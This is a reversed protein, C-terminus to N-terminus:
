SCLDMIIFIYRIMLSIISALITLVPRVEERVIPNFLSLASSLFPILLLSTLLLSILAREARNPESTRPCDIPLFHVPFPDIQWLLRSAM